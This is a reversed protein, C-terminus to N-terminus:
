NFLRKFGYYQEKTSERDIIGRFTNRSISVYFVLMERSLYPEPIDGRHLCKNTDAILVKGADGTFKVVECENEIIGNSVGEKYKTFGKKVINRTNDKNILHM